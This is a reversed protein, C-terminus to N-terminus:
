DSVYRATKMVCSLIIPATRQPFCRGCRRGARLFCRCIRSPLRCFRGDPRPVTQSCWLGISAQLAADLMSPHLIFPEKEERASPPLTLKALVEGNGAYVADLAQHSPGYTIGLSDFAKYCEAKSM